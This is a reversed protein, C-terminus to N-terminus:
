KAGRLYALVYERAEVTLRGHNAMMRAMTVDARQAKAAALTETVEALTRLPIGKADAAAKLKEGNTM